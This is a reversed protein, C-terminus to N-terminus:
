WPRCSIATVLFHYFSFARRFRRAKEKETLWVLVHCLLDLADADLDSLEERQEWMM